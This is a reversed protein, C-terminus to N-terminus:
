IIILLLAAVGGAISIYVGRKFHKVRPSYMWFSSVALFLLSVGYLIAFWIRSDQSSVRHLGHIARLWAPWDMRLYSAEGTVKNYTGKDFRLVKDTENLVKFTRTHLTMGLEIASMNPALKEQVHTESMLFDTDRFILLVGSISYVVTLGVVFFGIYRHWTRMQKNLSSM